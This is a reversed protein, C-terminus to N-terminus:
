HLAWAVEKVRTRSIFGVYRSDFSDAHDGIAFTAGDPVKGNFVFPVMTEGTLSKRKAHGIYEGDCFYDDNKVTLTEGSTCGAKKIFTRMKNQPKPVYQDFIIYQGTKVNQKQDYKVSWFVRKSLSKTLTVKLHQYVYYTALCSVAVIVVNRAFIWNKSKQPTEM